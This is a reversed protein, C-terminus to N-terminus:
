RDGCQQLIGTLGAEAQELDSLAYGRRVTRAPEHFDGALSQSANDYVGLLATVGLLESWAQLDPDADSPDLTLEDHEDRVHDALACAYDQLGTPSIDVDASTTGDPCRERVLDIGIRLEAANGHTMATFAHRGADALERGVLRPDGYRGEEARANFAGKLLSGVASVQRHLEDHTEPSGLDQVLEDDVAGALACAYEVQGEHSVDPGQASCGGLVLAGVVAASSVTHLGTM